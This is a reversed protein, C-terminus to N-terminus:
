SSNSERRPAAAGIGATPKETHISRRFAIPVSGHARRENEGDRRLAAQLLVRFAEERARAQLEDLRAARAFVAAGDGSHRADLDGIEGGRVDGRLEADARHMEAHGALVLDAFRIGVHSLRTTSISFSPKPSALTTTATGCAQISTRVM